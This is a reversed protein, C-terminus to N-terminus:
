AHDLVAAVRLELHPVHLLGPLPFGPSPRRMWQLSCPSSPSWAVLLCIPVVGKAIPSPDTAEKAYVSYYVYVYSPTRHIYMFTVVRVLLFIASLRTQFVLRCVESSLSVMFDLSTSAPRPPRLHVWVPGIQLMGGDSAHHELFIPVEGAPVVEGVRQAVSWIGM